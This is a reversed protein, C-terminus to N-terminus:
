IRTGIIQQSIGAELSISLFAEQSLMISATRVLYISRADVIGMYYGILIGGTSVM